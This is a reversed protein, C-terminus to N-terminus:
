YGFALEWVWLYQFFLRRLQRRRHPPLEDKLAHRIPLPQVRIANQNILLSPLPLNVDFDPETRRACPLGFSPRKSSFHWSPFLHTGLGGM